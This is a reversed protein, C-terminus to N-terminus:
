QSVFHPIEWYDEYIDSFWVPGNIGLQLKLYVHYTGYTGYDFTESIYGPCPTHENAMHWTDSSSKKYWLYLDGWDDDDSDGLVTVDIHYGFFDHYAYHSVYVFWVHVIPDQHESRVVITNSFMTVLFLGAILVALKKNIM